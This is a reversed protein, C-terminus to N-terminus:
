EDITAHRREIFGLWDRVLADSANSVLERLFVDRNSYLSNVILDMLKNVEAQYEFTEGGDAAAAAPKEDTSAADARVVVARRQRRNVATKQHHLAAAKGGGRITKRAGVVRSNCTGRTPTPTLSPSVSPPVPPTTACSPTSLPTLSLSHRSRAVVVVVRRSESPCLPKLANAVRRRAHPINKKQTFIHALRM